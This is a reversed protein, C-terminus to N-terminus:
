ALLGMPRRPPLTDASQPLRVELNIDRRQAIDCESMVAYVKKSFSRPVLKREPRGQLKQWRIQINPGPDHQLYQVTCHGGNHTPSLSATLKLGGERWTQGQCLTDVTSYPRSSFHVERPLIPKILWGAQPIGDVPCFSLLM